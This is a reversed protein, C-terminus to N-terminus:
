LATNIFALIAKVRTFHFSNSLKSCLLVLGQILHRFCLESCQQSYIATPFTLFTLRTPTYQLLCPISLPLKNLLLMPLSLYESELYFNFILCLLKRVSQIQPTISFSYDFFVGLYDQIIILLNVQKEKWRQIIAEVHTSVCITM